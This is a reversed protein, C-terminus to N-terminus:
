LNVWFIIDDVEDSDMPNEMGVKMGDQISNPDGSFQRQHAFLDESGDQPEIFGFGRLQFQPKERNFHVFTALNSM